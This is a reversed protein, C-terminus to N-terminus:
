SESYGYVRYVGTLSSAVSSILSFSDVQSAVANYYQANISRGKVGAPAVGDVNVISGQLNKYSSSINPAIFDLVLSMQSNTQGLAFSTSANNLLNAANGAFDLGTSMQYYGAATVDTGAVRVRGTLTSLATAATVDLIVRYNRYTSTFTNTAFSVSTVTTFSASNIFVLGSGVLTQWATGDYYQTAASGAINEIYAFQGEALTKEGTGGFAADRATSDAFVPIGTRASINMNAATLIEGATFTPVSTQANAGM